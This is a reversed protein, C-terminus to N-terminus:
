DRISQSLQGDLEELKKVISHSTLRIPSSDRSSAHKIKWAQIQIYKESEIKHKEIDELTFFNYAGNFSNGSATYDRFALDFTIYQKRAVELLMVKTQFDM